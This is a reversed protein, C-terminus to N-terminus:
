RIQNKKIGKKTFATILLLNLILYLGQIGTTSKTTSVTETESVIQVIFYFQEDAAQQIPQSCPYNLNDPIDFVSGNDMNIRLHYGMTTGIDYEPTFTVNFQGSTYENLDLGPFHCQFDPELSCYFLSISNILNQQNNIVTITIPTNVKITAGEPDQLINFPSYQAEVVALQPLCILQYIIIIIFLLIPKSKL